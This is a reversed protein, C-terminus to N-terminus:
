STQSDDSEGWSRMVLGSIESRHHGTSISSDKCFWQMCWNRMLNCVISKVSWRRTIVRIEKIKMMDDYAHRFIWAISVGGAQLIVEGKSLRPVVVGCWKLVVWSQFRFLTCTSSYFSKLPNWILELGSIHIRNNPISVSSGHCLNVSKFMSVDDFKLRM